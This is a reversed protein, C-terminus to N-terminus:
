KKKGGGSLTTLYKAAKLLALCGTGASIIYQYEHVSSCDGVAFIGPVSSNTQCDVKIHGHEDIEVLGKVFDTNATRGIEVFVGSVTIEKTKGKQEYKLGTVFKGGVIAITEANNLIIIKKEKKIREVLYEHANFKDNINILYIKRAVKDLFDVAELASNGGGVIAVDKGKFLPGDCIACYTLGMKQYKEEGPVTLRRPKSGTAIIITKTLYEKKDTQVLFNKGKKIIKNVVMGTQLKVDNFKLQEEMLKSFDAGTTEVIGPYNLVEGSENFQGGFMESIFAYNMKKRAAYIAATCGAIGAGIIILDLVKSETNVNFKRKVM